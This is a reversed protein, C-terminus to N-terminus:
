SHYLGRELENESENIMSNCTLTSEARNKEDQLLQENIGSCLDLWYVYCAYRSHATQSVMQWPIPILSSRTMFFFYYRQRLKDKAVKVKKKWILHGKSKEKQTTAKWSACLKNLKSKEVTKM